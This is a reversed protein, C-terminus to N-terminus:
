LRAGPSWEAELFLDIILHTRIYQAFSNQHCVVYTKVEELGAEVMVAAMPPYRWTGDTDRRPKKGTLCHPM